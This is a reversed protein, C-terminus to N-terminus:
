SGDKRMWKAHIAHSNSPHSGFEPFSNERWFETHKFRFQQITAKMQLSVVHWSLSKYRELLDLM